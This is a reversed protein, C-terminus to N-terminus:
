EVFSLFTYEVGDHWIAWPRTSDKTVIRVNGLKESEIDLGYRAYDNTVVMRETTEVPSTIDVVLLITFFLLGLGGMFAELWDEYMINLGCFMLSAIGCVIGIIAM